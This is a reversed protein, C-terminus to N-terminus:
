ETGTNLEFGKGGDFTQSSHKIYPENILPHNVVSVLKEHFFEPPVKDMDYFGQKNKFKKFRQSVPEFQTEVGNHTVPKMLSIVNSELPKAPDLFKYSFILSDPTTYVFLHRLHDWRVRKETREQM